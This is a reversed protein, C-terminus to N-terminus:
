TIGERRRETRSRKQEQPALPAPVSLVFEGGDALRMVITTEVVEVQRLEALEQTYAWLARQLTRPVPPPPIPRNGVPRIAPPRVRPDTTILGIGSGTPAPATGAGSLTPVGPTLSASGSAQAHSSAALAAGPLGVGVRERWAAVLAPAEERLQARTKGRHALALLDQLAPILYAPYLARPLRDGSLKPVRREPKPIIGYTVWSIVQRESTAYGRRAIEEVLEDRTLLYPPGAQRWRLDAEVPAAVM